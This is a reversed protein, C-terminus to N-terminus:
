NERKIKDELQDIKHQLTKIMVFLGKIYSSTDWEKIELKKYMSMDDEDKTKSKLTDGDLWKTVNYNRFYKSLHETNEIEDIIFGYDKTLNDKVNKYKYDYNYAGIAQIDKYLDDYENELSILNKKVNLSSPGSSSTAIRNSSSDTSGVYAYYGSAPQLACNLNAYMAGGNNSNITTSKFILYNSGSGGNIIVGNDNKALIQVGRSGGLSSQGNITLYSDGAEISCIESGFDGRDTGSRFSIGNTGRCINLASVYPHNTWGSGAFGMRLFGVNNYVDLAGSTLKDASLNPIRASSLTGSNINAANINSNQITANTIQADGITVTGSANLNTTNITGSFSGSTATVEGTIHANTAYLTGDKRVRFPASGADEAGLWIGTQVSPNSDLRIYTSGSGSELKNTGIHWGGIYGDGTELYGKFIGNKAVLTGDTKVGFNNGVKLSYSGSTGDITANKGSPSLWITNNPSYFGDSQTIWGAINSGDTAVLYGNFYALTDGNAQTGIYAAINNTDGWTLAYATDFPALHYSKNANKKLIIGNNDILMKDGSGSRISIRKADLAGVLMDADVGNNSLIKTWIVDHGESDTNSNPSFNNTIYIGSGTYRVAKTNDGSAAARLGTSDLLMNGGTGVISINANVNDLSNRISNPDITGDNNLVATRAYIDANNLVTNTATIINGVLDEADTYATDLTIKNEDPKDPRRSIETILGPVGFLGMPEDYITVYDGAKPAIQGVSFLQHVLDNYKDRQIEIKEGGCLPCRSFENLSSYECETCRYKTIQPERYEFLGTADIVNVDYTVEPICYKDSAELGEQYLLSVYSQDGNTYNGEVFFDGYNEYEEARIAKCAEFWADYLDQLEQLKALCADVKDKDALWKRYYAVISGDDALGKYGKRGTLDNWDEIYGVSARIPIPNGQSDNRSALYPFGAEKAETVTTLPIKNSLDLYPYYNVSTTAEDQDYRDITEVMRQVLGKIYPKDANELDSQVTGELPYIPIEIKHDDDGLIKWYWKGNQQVYDQSSGPLRNFAYYTGKSDHEVDYHYKNQLSQFKSQWEKEDIDYQNAAKRYEDNYQILIENYWRLFDENLDDIRQEYNYIDLIDNQTIWNNQYAWKFNLIYNSGWPSRGLAYSPDNPNWEGNGDFAIGSVIDVVKIEGNVEVYYNGDSNKSAETWTDQTNDFAYVKRNVHTEDTLWPKLLNLDPDVICWYGEVQTTPAHSIDTYYGNFEKVWSREATGININDSGNYNKGGSVYLKTIVKEGDLKNEDSKLNSGLRYTLGYNKGAFIHLGVKKNICDFSPYLQFGKSLDTISNYANSGSNEVSIVKTTLEKEYYSDSDKPNNVWVQELDVDPEEEGTSPNIRTGVEWGTGDLIYNLYNLANNPGLYPEVEALQSWEWGYRETHLEPDLGESSNQYLDYVHLCIYSNDKYLKGKFRYSEVPQSGMDKKIKIPFYFVTALIGYPWIPNQLMATITAKSLPYELASSPDWTYTTPDIGSGPISSAEYVDDLAKSWEIYKVKGPVDMPENKFLSWEPKTITNSNLGMGVRKKSLQFRPYDIAVYDVDVKLNDRKRTTPQVIYDMIYDEIINDPYTNSYTKEIYTTKDGYGVPEKVKIPQTGTYYITRRYRLRVLPTLLLLKPNKIKNAEDDLITNPMSFTLDSYGTNSEKVNINYAYGPTRKDESNFITDKINGEYDLVYLDERVHVDM